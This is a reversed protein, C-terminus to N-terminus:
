WNVQLPIIYVSSLLLSFGGAEDRLWGIPPAKPEKCTKGWEVLIDAIAFRNLKLSAQSAVGTLEASPWMLLRKHARVQERILARDEWRRMLAGKAPMEVGVEDAEPEPEAAVIAAAAMAVIPIYRPRCYGQQRSRCNGSYLRVAQMEPVHEYVTM